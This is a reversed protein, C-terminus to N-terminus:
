PWCYDRKHRLAMTKTKQENKEAQRQVGSPLTLKLIANVTIITTICAGVAETAPWIPNGAGTLSSACRIPVCDDYPGTMVSEGACRIQCPGSLANKDKLSPVPDAPRTRSLLGPGTDAHGRAGIQAAQQVRLHDFLQLKRRASEVPNRCGVSEKNWKKVARTYLEIVIVHHALLLDPTQAGRIDLPPSRHAIHDPRNRSAKRGAPSRSTHSPSAGECSSISLRKPFSLSIRPKNYSQDM